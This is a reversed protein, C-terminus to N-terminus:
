KANVAHWARFYEVLYSAPLEGAVPLGGWGPHTEATFRVFMPEHWETNPTSRILQNDFYFRLERESWEFGYTHFDDRLPLPAQWTVPDSRRNQDSELSPDGNFYHTNTHVSREHGPSTALVEFIDIERTGTPTWKYLWFASNIRASMPKARVEFYGYLTPQKAGVYAVRYANGSGGVRARLELRGGQVLVNDRAYVGPPSGAYSANMNDWKATDLQSGNFEDSLVWDFAWHKTSPTDSRALHTTLAGVLSVALILRRAYKSNINATM